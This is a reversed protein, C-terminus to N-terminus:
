LPNILLSVLLVARIMPPPGHPVIVANDNCFCPILDITNSFFCAPLLSSSPDPINYCPPASHIFYKPYLFSNYETEDVDFMTNLDISLVGNM